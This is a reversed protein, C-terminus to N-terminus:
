IPSTTIGSVIVYLLVAYETVEIPMPAKALESNVAMFMGLETEEM